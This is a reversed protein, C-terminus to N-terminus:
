RHGIIYVKVGAGSVTSGVQDFDITIEADDALSADSIVAATAATTSTKESADIMLKTSLITTGSENIDILITSGTPATTVSARVETVTFAYPMRFTRKATGTTIASTEDSCAIIIHEKPSITTSDATLNGGSFALGTSVNVASWTNAASRYYITNTGSLAALASLDADFAQVNVGIELGLTVRQAAADADDLLAKGATTLDYTAATGSGTFQIGKNAASTLGAIAVLEADTISVTISPTADVYVVGIGTGNVFITGVADQAQEDSYGAAAAAWAPKGSALTLVQGDSGPTLPGWTSTDRFAISGVTAGIADDMVVSLAYFNAVIDSGDLTTALVHGPLTSFACEVTGDLRNVPVAGPKDSDDLQDFLTQFDGSAPDVFELGTASGNVAVLKGAAGSYSGPVDALDTFDEVDSTGGGAGNAIATVQGKSNVTVNVSTYSGPTVGTTALSLQGGSFLLGDYTVQSWTDAASRYHQKDTTALAELAALDNALVFTPNGATGAPNTISFGAAPAALTRGVFTNDATQTLLGNTNFLALAALGADFAQVHTGITLGLTARATAADADDLLTLIFATPMNAAIPSALVWKRGSGFNVAVNSNSSQLVTTRTLQNTASYTGLGTEFDRYPIGNADVDFIAYYITDSVSCRTSFRAYGAVAEMLTAPGTGTVFSVELIRDGWKLAM